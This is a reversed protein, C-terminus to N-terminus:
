ASLLGAIVLGALGILILANLGLGLMPFLKHRSRDVLAIGAVIAAMASGIVGAFILLGLFMAANSDEDMGGPTMAEMIGAIVVVVLEVIGIILGLVLSVIGLWSHRRGPITAPELAAAPNGSPASYPSAFLQKLEAVDGARTWDKLASHWVWSDPQVGTAILEQLTLPGCRENGVMRYFQM